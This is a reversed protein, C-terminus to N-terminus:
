NKKGCVTCTGKASKEALNYVRNGKGYLDDQYKSNCDCKKITVPM